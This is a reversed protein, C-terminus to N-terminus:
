KNRSNIIAMFMSGFVPVIMQLPFIQKWYNVDAGSLFLIPVFSLVLLAIFYKIFESRAKKWDIM